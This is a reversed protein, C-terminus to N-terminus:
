GRFSFWVSPLYYLYAIDVRNSPRTPKPILGAALAIVFFMDVKFVHAAYPAFEYLPPGGASKWRGIIEKWLQKPVGLIELASRLADFRNREGLIFREALSKAESPNM